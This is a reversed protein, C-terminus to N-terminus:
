GNNNRNMLWWWSVPVFTSMETSIDNALKKIELIEAKEMKNTGKTNSNNNHETTLTM